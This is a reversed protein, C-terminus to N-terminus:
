AKLHLVCVLTFLRRATAFDMEVKAELRKQLLRAGEDHLTKRGSDLAEIQHPPATRIAKYYSDCVLFYDKIVRRFSALPLMVKGQAAGDERAIDLVLRNEQVELTVRYPGGSSSKLRFFNKELIDSIAVEREQEIPKSLALVSREDLTIAAIRFDSM